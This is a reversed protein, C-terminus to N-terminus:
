ADERRSSGADARAHRAIVVALLTFASLAVAMAVRTTGHGLDGMAIVLAVLATTLFALAWGLM